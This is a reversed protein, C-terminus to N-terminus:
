PPDALLQEEVAQDAHWLLSFDQPSPLACALWGIAVAVAYPNGSVFPDPIVGFGVLALPTALLLPMMAAVRLRWPQLDPPIARPSVVAWGGAISARLLGTRSREPLWSIEFPVGFVRLAFAHSLEHAITGVVVTV